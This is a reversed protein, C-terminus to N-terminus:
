RAVTPDPGRARAVRARGSSVARRPPRSILKPQGTPGGVANGHHARLCGAVLLAVRRLMDHDQAVVTWAGSSAAARQNGTPEAIVVDGPEETFRGRM